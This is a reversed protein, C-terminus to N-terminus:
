SPALFSTMFEAPGKATRLQTHRCPMSRCSSGQLSDSM